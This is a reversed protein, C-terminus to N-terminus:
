RAYSVFWDGTTTLIRSAISIRLISYSSPWKSSFQWKAKKFIGQDQPVIQFTTAKRKVFTGYAITYQLAAKRWSNQCRSTIKTFTLQLMAMKAVLSM